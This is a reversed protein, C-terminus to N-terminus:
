LVYAERSFSDFTIRDTEGGPPQPDFGKIGLTRLASFVSDIGKNLRFYGRFILTM